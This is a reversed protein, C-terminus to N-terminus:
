YVRDDDDRRRHRRRESMRSMRARRRNSSDADAEDVFYAMHIWTDDVELGSGVVSEEVFRWDM